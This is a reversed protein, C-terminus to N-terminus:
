KRGGCEPANPERKCLEVYGYPAPVDNGIFIRGAATPACGSLMVALTIAIVAIVPSAGAWALLNRAKRTLQM